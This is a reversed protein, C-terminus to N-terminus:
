QFTSDRHKSAATRYDDSHAYEWPPIFHNRTAMMAWEPIQKGTNLSIYESVGDWNFHIKRYIGVFGTVANWYKEESQLSFVGKGPKSLDINIDGDFVGTAKISNFNNLYFVLHVTDTILTGTIKKAKNAFGDNYRRCPIVFKPM